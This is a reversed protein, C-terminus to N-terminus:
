NPSGELVAAGRSGYDKRLLGYDALDELASQDVDDWDARREGVFTLSNGGPHVSLLFM